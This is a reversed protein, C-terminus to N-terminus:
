RSVSKLNLLEVVDLFGGQRAHDVALRQDGDVVTADAGNALLLQVMARDGGAAADMLATRGFSNMAANLDVGAELLVSVLGLERLRVATSFAPTLDEEPPMAEVLLEVGDLWRMEVASTVLSGQPESASREMLLRLTAISRAKIALRWAEEPVESGVGEHDWLWNAAEDQGAGVARLWATLGKQDVADARVGAQLFLELAEVDGSEAARGFEELSLTYGQKVLSRLAVDRGGRCGPLVVVGLLIAVVWQHRSLSGLKAVKRLRSWM